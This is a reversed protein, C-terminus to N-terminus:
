HIPFTLTHDVCSSFLTLDGYWRCGEEARADQVGKSGREQEERILANKTAGLKEVARKRSAILPKREKITAKAIDSNSTLSAMEECQDNCFQEAEQVTMRQCYTM